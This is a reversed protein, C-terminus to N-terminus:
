FEYHPLFLKLLFNSIPNKNWAWDLENQPPGDENV